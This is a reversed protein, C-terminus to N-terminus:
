GRSHENKGTAGTLDDPMRLPVRCEACQTIGERYAASCLPCVMEGGPDEPHIQAGALDVGTERALKELVVTRMEWVRELDEGGGSDAAARTKIHERKLIVDAGEPALAITLALSDFPALLRRTLKGFAHIASVPFFVFVMLEELRDGSEEPLLARHARWWLAVVSFFVVGILALEGWLLSLPLRLLLSMPLLMFTLVLLIVSANILLTSSRRIEEISDRIVQLDSASASVAEVANRRDGAPTERVERVRATLLRAAVGTHATHIVRGDVIVKRGNSRVDHIVEYSILELDDPGPPRHDDPFLVVRVYIGAESIFLPERTSLISWDWPLLGALRIGPGRTRFGSFTTGSLLLHGRRVVLVCDLLYLVALYPWLVTLVVGIDM